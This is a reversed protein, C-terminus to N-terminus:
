ATELEPLPASIVSVGKYGEPDPVVWKTNAPADDMSHGLLLSHGSRYLDSIITLLGPHIELAMGGLLVLTDPDGKLAVRLAWEVAEANHEFSATDIGVTLQQKQM